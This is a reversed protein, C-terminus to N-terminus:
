ERRLACGLAAVQNELARGHTVVKHTEEREGRAHIVRCPHTPTTVSAASPASDRFLYELRHLYNREHEPRLDGTGGQKGAHVSDLPRPRPRPPPLPQRIERASHGCTSLGYGFKSRNMSLIRARVARAAYMSDPWRGSVNVPLGCSGATIWFNCERGFSYLSCRARSLESAITLASPLRYQKYV